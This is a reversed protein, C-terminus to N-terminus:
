KTTLNVKSPSEIAGPRTGKKKSGNHGRGKYAWVRVHAKAKFRLEQSRNIISRM